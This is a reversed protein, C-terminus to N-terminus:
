VGVVVYLYRGEAKMTRINMGVRKGHKGGTGGVGVCGWRVRGMGRERRMRLTAISKMYRVTSTRIRVIYIINIHEIHVSLPSICHNRTRPDSTTPCSSWSRYPARSDSKGHARADHEFASGFVSSEYVM